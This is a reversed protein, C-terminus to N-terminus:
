NFDQVICILAKATSISFFQNFIRKDVNLQLKALVALISRRQILMISYTVFASSGFFLALLPKIREAFTTAEYAINWISFPVIIVCAVLCIARKTYIVLNSQSQDNSLYGVVRLINRTTVSFEM